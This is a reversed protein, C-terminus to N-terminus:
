WSFLGSAAVVRTHKGLCVYQFHEVSSHLLLLNCSWLSYNVLLEAIVSLSRPWTLQDFINSQFQSVINISVTPRDEVVTVYNGLLAILNPSFCLILAIVGNLTM